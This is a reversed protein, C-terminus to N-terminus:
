KRLWDPETQNAEYGISPSYIWIDDTDIGRDCLFGWLSKIWGTKAAHISHYEFILNRILGQKESDM